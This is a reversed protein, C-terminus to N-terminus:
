QNDSIKVKHINTLVIVEIGIQNHLTRSLPARAKYTEAGVNDVRQKLPAHGLLPYGFLSHLAAEARHQGELFSISIVDCVMSFLQICQMNIKYFELKSILLEPLSCDSVFEKLNKMINLSRKFHFLDVWNLLLRPFEKNLLVMTQCFDDKDLNSAVIDSIKVHVNKQEIAEGTASHGKVVGMCVFIVPALYDKNTEDGKDLMYPYIYMSHCKFSEDLQKVVISVFSEGDPPTKTSFQSIAVNCMNVKPSVLLKSWLSWATFLSLYPLNSQFENIHCYNEGYIDDSGLLDVSSQKM